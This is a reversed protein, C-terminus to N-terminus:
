SHDAIATVAQRRRSLHRAHRDALDETARQELRLKTPLLFTEVYLTETAVTKFTSLIKISALRQVASLTKVECKCRIPSHWVTSAYDIRPIVCAQYLQRMQKPRLYRLRGIALCM